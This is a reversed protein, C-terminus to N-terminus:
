RCASQAALIPLLECLRARRLHIKHEGNAVVRRAFRTRDPWSLRHGSVPANRIRCCGFACRFFDLASETISEHHEVASDTQKQAQRQRAQILEGDLLFNVADALLSFKVPVGARPPIKRCPM